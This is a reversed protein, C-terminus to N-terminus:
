QKAPSPPPQKSSATQQTPYPMQIVIPVPQSTSQPTRNSSTRVIVTAVTSVAALLIAFIVGVAWRTAVVQDKAHDTRVNAIATLVDNKSSSMEARMGDIASAVKAETADLRAKVEERNMDTMLADHPSEGPQAVDPTTDGYKPRDYIPTVKEGKM